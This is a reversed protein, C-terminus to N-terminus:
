PRMAFFPPADHGGDSGMLPDVVPGFDEHEAVAGVVARTGVVEAIGEFDTGDDLRGVPIGCVLAAAAQM